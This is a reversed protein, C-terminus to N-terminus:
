PLFSSPSFLHLSFPSFFSLFFSHSISLFFTLSFFFFPLSFIKYIIIIIFLSLPFFVSLSCFLFSYGQPLGGGRDRCLGFSLCLACIVKALLHSSNFGLPTLLRLFVFRVCGSPVCFGPGPGHSRRSWCLGFRVQEKRCPAPRVWVKGSTRM